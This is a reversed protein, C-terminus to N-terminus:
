TPGIAFWTMPGTYNYQAIADFGTNTINTVAPTGQHGTTFDAQNVTWVPVFNVYKAPGSFPINFTNAAGPFTHNATGTGWQYTIPGRVEYGNTASTAVINLPAIDGNAAGTNKYAATGLTPNQLVFIGGFYILTYAGTPILMGASPNQNTMTKIPIVGLGNVDIDCAGTNAHIPRLLVFDGDAYTTVPPDPAIVYHDAIGTDVAFNFYQLVESGALQWNATPPVDVNGNTLSYYVNGNTARVYSNIDYAYAAGDNMAATIHIPFGNQQIQQIASTTDFMLQNFQNRPIDLSSPDTDVLQYDIPFGSQYSVVGSLQTPNPIAALDGAVGFPYKFYKVTM